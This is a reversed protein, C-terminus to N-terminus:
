VADPPDPPQYTVKLAGLCAECFFDWTPGHDHNDMGFADRCDSFVKGHEELFGVTKWDPGKRHGAQGTNLAQLQKPLCVNVAAAVMGPPSEFCRPFQKAACQRMKHWPGPVQVSLLFRGM